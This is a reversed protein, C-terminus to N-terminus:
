FVLGVLVNADGPLFHKLSFHNLFFFEIKRKITRESLLKTYRKKSKGNSCSWDFCSHLDPKHPKVRLRIICMKGFNANGFTILDFFSLLDSSDSVCVPTVSRMKVKFHPIIKKKRRIQNGGLWLCISHSRAVASIRQTIEIRFLENAVM